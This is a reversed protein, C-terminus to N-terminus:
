RYCVFIAQYCFLFDDSFLSSRLTALAFLGSRLAERQAFDGSKLGFCVLEAVCLRGVKLWVSRQM